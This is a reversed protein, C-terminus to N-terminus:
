TSGGPRRGYVTAGARGVVPVTRAPVQLATRGIAQGDPLGASRSWQRHLVRKARGLVAGVFEPPSHLGQADGHLDADPEATASRAPVPTLSAAAIGAPRVVARSGAPHWRGGFAKAARHTAAPTGSLPATASSSFSSSFVTKLHDSWSGEMAPQQASAALETRGIGGRLAQSTTPAGPAANPAANLAPEACLAVGTRYGRTM